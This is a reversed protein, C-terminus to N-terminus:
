CEIIRDITERAKVIADLLERNIEGAEALEAEIAKYEGIAENIYDTINSYHARDLSGFRHEVEVYDKLM